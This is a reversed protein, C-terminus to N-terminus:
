KIEDTVFEMAPAADRGYLIEAKGGLIHGLLRANLRAVRIKGDKGTYVVIGCPNLAAYKRSEPDDAMQGIFEMGCISMLAFQSGDKPRPASCSASRLNWGSLKAASASINKVTDEFSGAAESEIFFYHRLFIIGAIFALVLGWLMGALFVGLFGKGFFKFEPKM